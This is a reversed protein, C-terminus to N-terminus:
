CILPKILAHSSSPVELPEWPNLYPFYSERRLFRLTKKWKVYGVKNQNTGFGIIYDHNYFFLLLILGM